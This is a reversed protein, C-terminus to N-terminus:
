LTLHHYFLSRSAHMWRYKKPFVWLYVIYLSCSMGNAENWTDGVKCLSYLYVTLSTTRDNIRHIIPLLILCTLLFLWINRTCTNFNHVMIFDNKIQVLRSILCATTWLVPNVIDSLYCLLFSHRLEQVTM